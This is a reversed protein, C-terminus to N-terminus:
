GAFFQRLEVAVREPQGGRDRNGSAGHNLGAFEVRKVQPLVKELADVATKLYAPSQSGGLLFTEVPMARFREVTEAMESVLQFDNHMTPALMRWTIDGPAAKKDESNMMRSTLLKLLWRPLSNFIPPGMQSGLMGTVLADAVKGQAIEQDYRALFSTPASGNVSLPPEFFAAKHIAPLCLASQLAILAGSSVGFIFHASTHTLLADVDEVETQMSYAQSSPGTLTRSQAVNQGRGRRDYVIVNFDPALAKALQLHSQATEMAGHVIVLGPGHGLQQYTITTGDKSTVAGTFDQAEGTTQPNIKM